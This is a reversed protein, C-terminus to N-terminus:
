SYPDNEEMVLGKFRWERKGNKMTRVYSYGQKEVLPIFKQKSLVKIGENMCYTRYRSYVYTASHGADKEDFSCEEKLFREVPNNRELWQEKVEAMRESESTYGRELAKRFMEICEYAFSPIEREVAKLDHHSIFEKTIKTDLPVIKFRRTDGHTNVKLSPLENASFILKAFSKYSFPNKNKFEILITDDGTLAKIVSVKDLYKSDIDAFINAEKLYVQSTAFRNNKDAFQELAVSSINTIGLMSTIHNLLTSKGNSGDGSLITLEQFPMGHYFCSGIMEMIYTISEGMLDSLWKKTKVAEGQMTLNYDHGHLLMLEPDHPSLRGTTFDYVGNNFAVKDTKMVEAPTLHNGAQYCNIGVNYATDKVTRNSWKGAQQLKETAIKETYKDIDFSKWYGGKESYQLPYPFNPYVVMRTEQMIEKALAPINVREKNNDDIYLWQPREKVTTTFGSVLEGVAESSPVTSNSEM